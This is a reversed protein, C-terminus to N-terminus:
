VRDSQDSTECTCWQWNGYDAIKFSTTPRKRTVGSCGVDRDIRGDYISNEADEVLCDKDTYATINLAHVEAVTWTLYLFVKKFILM